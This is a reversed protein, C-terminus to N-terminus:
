SVPIRVVSRGTAVMGVAHEVVYGAGDFDIAVKQPAATPSDSSGMTLRTITPASDPSAFLYSYDQPCFTSSIVELGGGVATTLVKATAAKSTPVLLTAGAADMPAGAADALGHLKDEAEDLAAVSLGTETTTNSSGFLPSGDYVNPNATLLDGFERAERRLLALAASRVAASVAGLDDNILLRLPILLRVAYLTAAGTVSADPSVVAVERMGTGVPEVHVEAITVHGLSVEKLDGVEQRTCLARIPPPPVTDEIVAAFATSLMWDWDTAALSRKLGGPQRLDEGTARELWTRLSTKDRFGYAATPHVDPAARGLMRAAFFDSTAEAHDSRSAHFSGLRNAEHEKFETIRRRTAYNRLGAEFTEQDM